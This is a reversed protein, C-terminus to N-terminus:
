QFSYHEVLLNAWFKMKCLLQTSKPVEIRLCGKYAPRKKIGVDTPKYVTKKFQHHSVGLKKAWWQECDEHAYFKHIYLRYRIEQREYVTFKELWSIMVKIMDVDSNTFQFTDSRKAGEAWYLSVGSHFFPDNKHIVFANKAEEFWIKERDLRRQQNAAAAKIRGHTINSDTRKKLVSKESDTLPLDKLWLSLSSKAVPVQALIEKYSSGQRRLKIALEKEQVLAKMIQVMIVHNM